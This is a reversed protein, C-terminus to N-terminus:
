KQGNTREGGGYILHVKAPVFFPKNHVIHFHHIKDKKLVHLRLVSGSQAKNYAVCYYYQSNLVLHIIQSWNKKRSIFAAKPPQLSYHVDFLINWGLHIVDESLQMIRWMMGFGFVTITKDNLWFTKLNKVLKGGRLREELSQGIKWYLKKEQLYKEFLLYYGDLM